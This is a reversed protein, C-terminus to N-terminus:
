HVLLIEQMKSSKSAQSTSIPQFSRNIASLLAVSSTIPESLKMDITSKSSSDTLERAKGKRSWEPMQNGMHHALLVM